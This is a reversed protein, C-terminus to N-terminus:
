RVPVDLRVRSIQTVSPVRSPALYPSDVNTIELQLVHDPAAQWVNGYTQITVDATGSQELMYTGRTILSRTGGPAVDVLRVNLQVRPALTAARLGVAAQGALVLPAGGTLEAV